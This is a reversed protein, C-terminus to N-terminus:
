STRRWPDPASADLMRQTFERIKEAPMSADGFEIEVAVVTVKRAFPWDPDTPLDREVLEASIIQGIPPGDLGFTVRVGVVSDPMFPADGEALDRGFAAAPIEAHVIM